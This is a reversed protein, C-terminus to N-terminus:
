AAVEESSPSEPDGIGLHEIPQVPQSAQHRRMRGNVQDRSWGVVRGAETASVNQELLSLVLAWRDEDTTPLVDPLDVDSIPTKSSRPPKPRTAARIPTPPSAVQLARDILDHGRTGVWLVGGYVGATVEPDAGFERCERLTPCRLCYQAVLPLAKTPTDVDALSTTGLCEADVMWRLAAEYGSPGYEIRAAYAAGAALVGTRM